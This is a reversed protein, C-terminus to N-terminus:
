FPFVIAASGEGIITGEHNCPVFSVEKTKINKDIEEIHRFRFSAM